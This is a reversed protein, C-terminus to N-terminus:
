IHPKPNSFRWQYVFPLQYLFYMRSCFIPIFPKCFPVIVDKVLKSSAIKNTGDSEHLVKDSDSSCQYGSTAHVNFPHFSISTETWVASNEQRNLKDNVPNGRTILVSRRFYDTETTGQPTLALALFNHGLVLLHPVRLSFNFFFSMKVEYYNKMIEHILMNYWIGVFLQPHNLIMIDSWVLYTWQPTISM